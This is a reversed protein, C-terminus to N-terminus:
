LLALLVTRAFSRDGHLICALARAQWPDRAGSCVPTRLHFLGATLVELSLFGCVKCLCTVAPCFLRRLPLRAEDRYPSRLAVRTGPVPRGGDEETVGERLISATGQVSLSKLRCWQNSTDTGFYM